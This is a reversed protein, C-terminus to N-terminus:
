CHAWRGSVARGLKDAKPDTLVKETQCYLLHDKGRPHEKMPFTYCLCFEGVWKGPAEVERDQALLM